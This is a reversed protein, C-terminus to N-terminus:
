VLGFWIYGPVQYDTDWAIHSGVRRWGNQVIAGKSITDLALYLGEVLRAKLQRLPIPKLSVADHGSDLQQRIDDAMCRTFENALTAKIPRNMCVDVM